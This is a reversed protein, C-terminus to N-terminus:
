VARRFGRAVSPETPLSHGKWRAVIGGGRSPAPTWPRSGDHPGNHGITPKGRSGKRTRRGLWPIEPFSSPSRLARRPGPRRPMTGDPLGGSITMLAPIMPPLAGLSSGRRAGEPRGGQRRVEVLRLM